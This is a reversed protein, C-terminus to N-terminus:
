AGSAGLLKLARAPAVIRLGAIEPVDLLDADGTILLPAQAALAIHIFNDGDV